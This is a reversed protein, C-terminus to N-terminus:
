SVSLKFLSTKKNSGGAKGCFGVNRYLEKDRKSSKGSESGGGTVEGVVGTVDAILGTGVGGSTGVYGSITNYMDIKQQIQKGDKQTEPKCCM